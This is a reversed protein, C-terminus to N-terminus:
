SVLNRKQALAITVANEVSIREDLDKIRLLRSAYGVTRAIEGLTPTQGPAIRFSLALEVVNALTDVAKPRSDSKVNAKM